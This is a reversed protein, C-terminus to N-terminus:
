TGTEIRTLGNMFFSFMITIIIVLVISVASMYGMNFTRFNAAYNYATITETSNGPGGGTLVYVTDFLKITDISRLMAMAFLFPYLLPVIIWRYLDLLSAGDVMAADYLEVDQSELAALLFLTVFPTWQWVDVLAISILGTTGRGLWEVPALGALRLFYNIPGHQYDFMMRWSYALAVPTLLIPLVIITRFWRDGWTRLQLFLAVITGLLL